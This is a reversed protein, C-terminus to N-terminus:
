GKVNIFGILRNGESNAYSYNYSRKVEKVQNSYNGEVTIFHDSQVTKVIAGHGAAPNNMGQWIAISGTKPKSSLEFIGSNDNRFNTWTIQSNASILKMALEKRKGSLWKSWVYKVYMMCWQWGPQWGLKKLDAEFAKNTFAFDRGSVEKIGLTKRFTSRLSSNSLVLLLLGVPVYWYKKIKEQM